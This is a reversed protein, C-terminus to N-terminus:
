GREYVMEGAVWTAAVNMDDDLAVIDADMGPALSGKREALGLAVSPTESAMRAAGALDAVGWAVCNRVVSDMTAASGAITGNPLRISGGELRAELGGIRFSGDALGAPAVADTVLCVRGAGFARVLLAVTAAHLHVGDAIVEVTVGDAALAAALPGPERHHLPRMANFAHTVHTAGATFADRAQLYTADTHGVSVRAKERVLAEIVGDAGDLEPAITILRLTGRTADLLRDLIDGSPRRLWSPPIAGPRAPSLFPGELNVGLVAAGREVPGTVSAAVAAASLGADLSDACVTPLFSTVGRSPVWRAYSEIETADGTILSYGGGGHVHLDVFGPALVLGSVDRKVAGGTGSLDPGIAEIVGSLLIDAMTIQGDPHLVRGGHFLTKEAM